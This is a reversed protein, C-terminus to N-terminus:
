HWRSAVAVRVVEDSMRGIYYLSVGGAAYIPYLSYPVGPVMVPNHRQIAIPRAYAHATISTYDAPMDAWGGARVGLYTAYHTFSGNPEIMQVEDTTLREGSRRYNDFDNENMDCRAFRFDNIPRRAFVFERDVGGWASLNVPEGVGVDLIQIDDRSLGSSSRASHDGANVAGTKRARYAALDSDALVVDNKRLSDILSGSAGQTKLKAEQDATLKQALKRQNVERVIAPESEHARVLLSVENFEMPQAAPAAAVLCLSFAAGILLKQLPPQM